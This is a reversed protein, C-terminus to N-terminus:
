PKINRKCNSGWNKHKPGQFSKLGRLSTGPPPALGAPLSPRGSEPSHAALTPNPNVRPPNTPDTRGSVVRAVTPPSSPPPRGRRGCHRRAPSDALWHVHVPPDL